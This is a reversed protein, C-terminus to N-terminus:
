GGAVGGGRPWWRAAARGFLLGSVVDSPYHVGVYVRSVAVAVDLAGLLRAGLAGVGLERAAIRSFATLVAPHSSPWAAARPRRILTRAAGPDADAPRPRNVLAKVGQLALWVVGAAALGRVAARRRGAVSLVAAAAAPAGISGLETIGAMARDAIPGGGRNLAAFLGRDIRRGTPTRIAAYGIGAAVASLAGGWALRRWGMARM